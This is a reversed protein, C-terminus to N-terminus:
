LFVVRPVLKEKEFTRIDMSEDKLFDLPFDVLVGRIQDYKQRAETTLPVSKRSMQDIKTIVEPMAPFIDCYLASNEAATETMLTWAEESVPDKITDLEHEDLSLLDQWLQMRLTHCFQNVKSFLPPLKAFSGFALSLSLPCRLKLAM